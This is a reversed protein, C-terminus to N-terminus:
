CIWLDITTSVPKSYRILTPTLYRYTEMTSAFKHREESFVHVSKHRNYINTQYYVFLFLGLMLLMNDNLLFNLSNSISQNYLDFFNFIKKKHQLLNHVTCFTLVQRKLALRVVGIHSVPIKTNKAFNCFSVANEAFKNIM